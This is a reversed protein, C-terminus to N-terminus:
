WNMQEVREASWFTGTAINKKFLTYIGNASFDPTIEAEEGGMRTKVWGPHIANVRINKDLLRAALTRVYMNLAAKSMRYATANPLLHERNMMGMISSICFISSGDPMLKLLEETLHIIGFVNTDFTKRILGLDPQEQDLDLGVGANNILLDIQINQNKLTSICNEVSTTDTIELPLVTLHESTIDAIKGNRSTAIVVYNEKLFKQVLAFGIGTNGGTIFVTKRM